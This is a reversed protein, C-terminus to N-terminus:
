NGEVFRKYWQRQRRAPSRGKFREAARKVCRYFYAPDQNWGKMDPRLDNDACWDLAQSVLDAAAAAALARPYVQTPAFGDIFHGTESNVTAAIAIREGDDSVAYDFCVFDDGSGIAFTLEGYPDCQAMLEADAAETDPREDEDRDEDPPGNCGPPYSWGFIDTAM